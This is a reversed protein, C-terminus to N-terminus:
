RFLRLARIEASIKGFASHLELGDVDFFDSPHSACNRMQNFAPDSTQIDFGITYIRIGNDKALTCLDLFQRERFAEDANRAANDRLVSIDAADDTLTNRAYLNGGACCRIEATNLAFYDKGGRGAANPNPYVSSLPRNQYRINGDTMLVIIKQRSPDGFAGPRNAFTRDVIGKDALAGVLPQSSPALLALGWKMGIQTGTGDHGAFEDIEKKLRGIDSSFPVLAQRDAPCWGWEAERGKKPDYPLRTQGRLREFYFNQFHPVQARSQQLPLDINQMDQDQFEICSSYAHVRPQTALMDYFPGANVQGAYPILSISTNNQGKDKLTADVFDKAAERLVDLRRATTGGTAERAMSGSIDLVLSIEIEGTGELAAAGAGVGLTKLGAVKLVSTDFSYAAGASVSRSNSVADVTVSATVPHTRFTRADVYGQVIEAADETQELSAAALVGRDLANQLDARQAEHYALDIALGTAFVLLLFLPLLLATVAGREDRLFCRVRSTPQCRLSGSTALRM